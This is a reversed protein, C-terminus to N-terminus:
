WIYKDPAYNFDFPFVEALVPPEHLNRNQAMITAMNGAALPVSTPSLLKPPIKPLGSGDRAAIFIRHHPGIQKGFVEAEPWVGRYEPGICFARPSRDPLGDWFWSGWPNYQPATFEAYVVQLELCLREFLGMVKEVLASKEFCAARIQIKMHGLLFDRRIPHNAPYSAFKTACPISVWLDGFPPAAVFSVDPNEAFAALLPRYDNGKVKGHLPRLDQVDRSLAEFRQPLAEPLVEALTELLRPLGHAHFGEGDKFWFCLWSPDRDPKSDRKLQAQRTSTQYTGTQRDIVVGKTAALVKSLWVEIQAWDQESTQNSLSIQWLLRRKGVVALEREPLDDPEIELPGSVELWGEPSLNPISLAVSKAAYLSLDYSM